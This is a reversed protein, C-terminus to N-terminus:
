FVIQMSKQEKLFKELCKMATEIIETKQDYAKRTIEHEDIM